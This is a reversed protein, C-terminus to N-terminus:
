LIVHLSKGAHAPSLTLLLTNGTEEASEGLDPVAETDSQQRGRSGGDSLSLQVDGGRAGLEQRLEDLHGAIAQHGESTHTVISVNVNSGDVKVVAQVHGLSPPNLMATLSYVGSGESIPKSLAATLAGNSVAFDSREAPQASGAAGARELNVTFDGFSTNPLSATVSGATAPGSKARVSCSTQRSSLAM